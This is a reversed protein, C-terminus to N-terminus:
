FFSSLYIFCINIIVSGIRWNGPESFLHVKVVDDTGVMVFITPSSLSKDYL